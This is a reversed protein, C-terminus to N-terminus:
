EAAVTSHRALADQWIDELSEDSEGSDIGEQILVRLEEKAANLEKDRRVLSMLYASEDAHDGTAVADKIHTELEDSIEITLRTM